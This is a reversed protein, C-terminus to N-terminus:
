HDEGSRMKVVKEKFVSKSEYSEKKKNRKM